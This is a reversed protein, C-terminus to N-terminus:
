GRAQVRLVAFGNEPNHFTVREIVGSLTEAMRKNYRSGSRGGIGATRGSRLNQFAAELRKGCKPLGLTPGQPIGPLEWMRRAAAHQCERQEGRAAAAPRPFVTSM